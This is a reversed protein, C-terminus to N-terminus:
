ATRVREAAGARSTADVTLGKCSGVLLKAALSPGASAGSKGYYVNELGLFKGHGRVM